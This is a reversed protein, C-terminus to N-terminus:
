KTEKKAPQKQQTPKAPKANKEKKQLGQKETLTIEVRATVYDSRIAQKGYGLVAGSVWYKRYRPFTNQKYALANEVFLSEEELGKNQANAVANDLLQLVIRAEKKPYKGQQGGLESRHGMGKKFKHFRIAKTMDIAQELIKRAVPVPKHKIARCVQTLDRYSANYDYGQSRAVKKEDAAKHAYDYLGM